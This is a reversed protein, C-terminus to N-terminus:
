FAVGGRRPCHRHTGFRNASLTVTLRGPPRPVGGTPLEGGDDLREVVAQPIKEPRFLAM